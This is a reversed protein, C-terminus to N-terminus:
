STPRRPLGSVRIIEFVYDVIGGLIQLESDLCVGELFALRTLRLASAQVQLDSSLLSGKMAEAFITLSTSDGNTVGEVASRVKGDLHPLSTCM